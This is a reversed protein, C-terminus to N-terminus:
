PPLLLPAILLFAHVILSIKPFILTCVLYKSSNLRTSSFSETIILAVQDISELSCIDAVWQEM